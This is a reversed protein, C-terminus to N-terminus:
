GNDAHGGYRNLAALIGKKTVKVFVKDVVPCEEQEEEIAKKIALKAKRETTHFTYRRSEGTRPSCSLAYVDEEHL